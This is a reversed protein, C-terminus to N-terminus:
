FVIRKETANWQLSIPHGRKIWRLPMGVLQRRFGRMIETADEEEETEALLFAKLAPAPTLLDVAVSVTQSIASSASCLLQRLAEEGRDLHTKMLQQTPIPTTDGRELARVLTLICESHRALYAGNYGLAELDHVSQPPRLSLTVLVDDKAIIKPSKNQRMGELERWKALAKLIPKTKETLQGPRVRINLWAEDPTPASHRQLRILEMEARFLQERNLLLVNKQAEDNPTISKSVLASPILPMTRMHQLLVDRAQHLYRVDDMAYSIQEDTLPRRSWDSGGLGKEMHVQLLQDMLNGLSIPGVEGLGIFAAAVQTDFLQAPSCAVDYEQELDHLVQLDVSGGHLIVEKTNILEILPLLSGQLMQCDVVAVVSNVTAIQMLQISPRYLPFSVFELDIALCEEDRLLSVLEALSAEKDVYMEKRTDPNDLDFSYKIDTMMPRAQTYTPIGPASSRQLPALGSSMSSEGTLQPNGRACPAPSSPSACAISSGNDSNAQVFATALSAQTPTLYFTPQRHNVYNNAQYRNNYKPSFNSKPIFGKSSASNHYGRHKPNFFERDDAPISNQYNVNNPQSALQNQGQSFSRVASAVPRASRRHFM